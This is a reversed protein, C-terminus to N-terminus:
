VGFGSIGCLSGKGADGYLCVRGQQRVTQGSGTQNLQVEGSSIIYYAPTDAYSVTWGSAPKSKTTTIQTNYNAVPNLYSGYQRNVIDFTNDGRDVFKWMSVASAATNDKGM